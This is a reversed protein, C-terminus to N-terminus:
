KGPFKEESCNCLIMIADSIRRKTAVDSMINSLSTRLRLSWDIDNVIFSLCIAKRQQFPASFTEKRRNM